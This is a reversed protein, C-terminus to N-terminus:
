DVRKTADERSMGKEVYQDIAKAHRRLARTARGGLVGPVTGTTRKRTKKDAM